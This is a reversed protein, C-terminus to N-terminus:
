RAPFCREDHELLDLAAKALHAHTLGYAEM